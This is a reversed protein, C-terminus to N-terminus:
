RSMWTHGRGLLQKIKHYIIIAVNATIKGMFHYFLSLVPVMYWEKLEISGFLVVAVAFFPISIRWDRWLYLSLILLLTGEVTKGEEWVGFHVLTEFVLYIGILAPAIRYYMRINRHDAHASESFPNLSLISRLLRNRTALTSSCIKSKLRLAHTHHPNVALVADIIECAIITNDLYYTITALTCLYDPNNPDSALARKVSHYAEVYRSLDSLIEAREHYYAASNPDLHLAEDISLLAEKGREQLNLIHAKIYFWYPDHPFSGMAKHLHEVADSLKETRILSLILLSYAGKRDEDEVLTLPVAMSIAEDYRCLDYLTELKKITESM